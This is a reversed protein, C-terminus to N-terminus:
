VKKVSIVNSNKCFSKRHIASLGHQAIATRHKPTGYGKHSEFVYVPYKKAYQIMVKDRSVKALIAAASIVPIKTDGKIITKQVNYKKPAKLGGDLFVECYEPKIHLKELARTLADQVAWVIGKADIKKSSSFSVAFRVNKQSHLINYWYERQVQSLKKSDKIGELFSINSEVQVAYVGVSVPGALPGRGAEDVGVIWQKKITKNYM